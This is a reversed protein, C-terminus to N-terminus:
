REVAAVAEEDLPINADAGTRQLLDQLHQLHDYLCRRRAHTVPISEHEHEAAITDKLGPPALLLHSALTSTREHGTYTSHLDIGHDGLVTDLVLVYPGVSRARTQSRVSEGDLLIKVPIDTQEPV